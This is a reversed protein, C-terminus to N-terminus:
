EARADGRFNWTRTNEGSELTVQHITTGKVPLYLRFHDTASKIPLGFKVLRENPSASSELIVKQGKPFDKQELERWSIGVNGGKQNSLRLSVSIPSEFAVRPPVLFPAKDKRVPTIVLGNSAQKMTGNRIIWGGVKTPDSPQKPMVKLSSTKPEKGNLYFDFYNVWNTSSGQVSLGSPTLESSWESLQFRLREAIEPQTFLLNNKESPDSELDFLYERGMGRLLKWKGDRIASQAVWRWTLKRNPAGKKEGTLYPILNIGNLESEEPLGALALATAAVDLSWVPHKYVQNGPVSAPYSMLFPVRIGGETLMGKEGNMPENLSGDWGPGGGPLDAKHIKLPAGNDGIFFIMTNEYLEQAKLQAVIQGVGDDMASIMALAQRRREPMEGPFRSLYKEPADLPVHPARYALYLFFPNPAHRKIFTVAAESCADLHYLDDDVQQMEITEGSLKYTAWCPRNSNKAYVDDFGHDTIQNTPGLHWKGVQGTAYGAKKLREAITLEKNFGDLDYSNSEVGFRNQSKGTLVGARSPVCQPATSYGSTAYVGSKALADLHPTKLEDYIGAVGIDPWGHDDTYILIVNPKALAGIAGTIGIALITTIFKM